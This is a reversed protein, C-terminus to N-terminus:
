IVDVYLTRPGTFSMQSHLGIESFIFASTFKRSPIHEKVARTTTEWCCHERLDGGRGGGGGGGGGGGRGGANLSAM